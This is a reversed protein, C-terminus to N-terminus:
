HLDTFNGSAKVRLKNTQTNYVVAGDPINSDNALTTQQSNNVQPFAIAEISGSTSVQVIRVFSNNSNATSIGLKLCNEPEYYFLGGIVQQGSGSPLSPDTM